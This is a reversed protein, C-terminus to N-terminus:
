TSSAITITPDNLTRYCQHWATYVMCHFPILADTESTDYMGAIDDNGSNRDHHM